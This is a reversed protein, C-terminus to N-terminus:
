LKWEKEYEYLRLMHQLQHLYDIDFTCVSQYDENDIHGFWKRPYNPLRNDLYIRNDKTFYGVGCFPDIVFGNALLLEPTIPIPEISKSSVILHSGEVFVTARLEDGYIKIEEVRGPKNISRPYTCMVWDGVMLDRIEM